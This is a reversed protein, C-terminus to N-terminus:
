VDPVDQREDLGVKAGPRLLADRPTGHLPTNQGRIRIWFPRRIFSRATRAPTAQMKAPVDKLEAAVVDELCV